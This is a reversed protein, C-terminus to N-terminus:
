KPRISDSLTRLSKKRILYEAIMLNPIWGLWAFLMYADMPHPRFLLVIIWKWARLTIASLTLAFSRIMFARHKKFDLKRAFHYALYTFLIWLIALTTFASQSLLGGNAYLAMALGAPGSLFLIVVVYLRGMTKHLAPQNQQINKSFQTFGAILCLSSTFVHIYFSSKWIENEIVWQKIRLFAVDERLSFYPITINIMLASFLFLLFLAPIRWYNNM